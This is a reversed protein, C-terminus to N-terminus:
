WGEEADRRQCGKCSEIDSLQRRVENSTVGSSLFLIPKTGCVWFNIPQAYDFFSNQVIQSTTSLEIAIYIHALLRVQVPQSPLLLNM